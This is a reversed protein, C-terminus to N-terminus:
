KSDEEHSPHPCTCRVSPIGEGRVFFTYEGPCVSHRGDVCLPCGEAFFVYKRGPLFSYRKKRVSQRVRDAVVKPSEISDSWFQPIIGHSQIEDPTLPRYRPDRVLVACAAALLIVGAIIRGRKM